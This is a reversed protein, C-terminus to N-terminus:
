SAKKKGINDIVCYYVPTFLLTVITSILMGSVMTVGMDSMMENSQGIGLALPMIALITTLTTMLVPRIRLPCANLIADTRSEGRERRQRIYDILIISANVVTGALMILAVMSIMSLDRGTLPLAFLAGSFAVPLIMMVIVPMVFSEFQSALVFYVLGMAVILALTLDHFNNTLEEYGGGFKVEYGDPMPYADLIARIQETVGNTDGSVSTGTITVSRSQNTRSISAPALQVDVHAVAGLPVTGGMPTTVALSRLADLNTAAAGDGRVVIDIEKNDINVRTATMGSLEARVAQGVAAATLGYQAAAERNMTVKVQPVDRGITSTIDAADPLASIPKMLDNAIMTLTNYDTGTVEVSIDQGTMMASMDMASVVVECGAVDAFSVRLANAIETATRERDKRPVLRIGIENESEGVVYYVSELEPVEARVIDTLQGAVDAAQEVRAGVPMTITAQIMNMDMDPLLVQKTSLCAAAFGAVLAVSVLVGLALHNVFYGLVKRYAALFRSDRRPQKERAALAHAKSEDLLFYCLLPVLTVSIALSGLILFSITLCFDKFIMGALGSTLGLPLFVAVTTFTSATLSLMVEKTGQVCSTLRDNGEASYRYINELVVISNDVIMGVGMAIGGLSLLNMTLDFAYMLVFVTLICVPMSVAIALTAGFRRLFLFVVVAALAVGLVINELAANVVVNIYESALYPTDYVVAHNKQALEAMKAAVKDAVAAENAGSQKSVQLFVANVDNMEGIDRRETTELVVNAIEGLRVSGGTQLPIIVNRVDDVSRLQADTSVTLKQNGNDLDGGPYLLNEAVLIQSIYSNSLGLGRARAADVEVAIRQGAGGYYSVSAVGDIRELAPVVFDEALAQVSALDEGMLAVYATPLMDSVNVNMIVPKGCDEPLTLADFKERLKTAAIDLNTGDVYSIQLTSLSDESSSMVSDVGPVSMIASELPRTVLQEMDEPAAGNYYCYVYAAPYEMNPLLALQLERLFIVGFISIIIFALITTVKHKICFGAIGNM